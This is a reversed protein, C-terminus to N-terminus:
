CNNEHQRTRKSHQRKHPPTTEPSEDRLPTSDPPLPPHPPHITHVPQPIYPEVTADKYFYNRAEETFMRDVFQKIIHSNSQVLTNFIEVRTEDSLTNFFFDVQRSSLSSSNLERQRRNSMNGHQACFLRSWSVSRSSRHQQQHRARVVSETRHTSASKVWHTAYSKDCRLAALLIIVHTM